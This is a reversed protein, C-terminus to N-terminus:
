GIVQRCINLIKFIYEGDQKGSFNNKNYFITGFHFANCHKIGNNDKASKEM